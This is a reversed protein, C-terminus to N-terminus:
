RLRWRKKVIDFPSEYADAKYILIFPDVKFLRRAPEPRTEIAAAM